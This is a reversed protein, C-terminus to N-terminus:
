PARATLLPLPVSTDVTHPRQGRAAAARLLERGGVQRPEMPREEARTPKNEPRKGEWRGGGAKQNTVGSEAIGLTWPAAGCRSGHECVGGGRAGRWAPGAPRAARTADEGRSGTQQTRSASDRELPEDRALELTQLFLFIEFFILFSFFLFLVKNKRFVFVCAHVGTNTSNSRCRVGACASLQTLFPPRQPGGSARPRPRGDAPRVARAEQPLQGSRHPLGHGARGTGGPRGGLAEKAHVSSSPTCLRLAPPEKRRPPRVCHVMPLARPWELSRWLGGWGVRPVPEEVLRTLSDLRGAPPRGPARRVRRGGLPRPRDQGTGRFASTKKHTKTVESLSTGSETAVPIAEEGGSEPVHALACGREGRRSRRGSAASAGKRHPKASGAPGRVLAHSTTGM